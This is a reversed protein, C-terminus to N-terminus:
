AAVPEAVPLDIVVPPAFNENGPEVNLLLVPAADEIEPEPAAIELTPEPAYDRAQARAGESALRWLMATFAGLAPDQLAEVARLIRMTLAYDVGLGSREAQTAHAAAIRFAPLLHAPLGARAYLAGFGQGYPDAVFGAVRAPPVDAMEALSQTLLSTDGNALARVMLGVTLHGAGRLWSVLEALEAGKGDLAIAVFAQERGDRAFREARRPDLWHEQEALGSMDQTAACAIAARLSAPLGPREVLRERLEVDGPFREFIRWLATRGLDAALNSILARVAAREGIEALAGAVSAALPARRAIAAQALADGIAACDVLDADSLRPSLQLVPRAVESIDQALALAIHRPAQAASALAQALGRRVRPEPDDLARTLAIEAEARADPSLDSHLYARALANVAEAREHPFASPAWALFRRVLGSDASPTDVPALVNV